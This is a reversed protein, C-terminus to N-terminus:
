LSMASGRFLASCPKVVSDLRGLEERIAAHVSSHLCPLRITLPPTQHYIVATDREHEQVDLMMRVVKRQFKAQDNLNRQCICVSGKYILSYSQFHCLVM